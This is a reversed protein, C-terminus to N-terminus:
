VEIETTSIPKNAVRERLAAVVWKLVDETDVGNAKTTLIIKGDKELRAEFVTNGGADTVVQPQRRKRPQTRAALMQMVWGRYSTGRPGELVRHLGLTLLELEGPYDKKLQLYEAAIAPGIKDPRENMLAHFETPLELMKLIGSVTSQKIGLLKGAQTQNNALNATMARQIAIAKEWGTLEERGGNQVLAILQATQDDCVKICADIGQWGINRAARTRRHGGLLEYHDGVARVTILEAQGAERMSEGLDDIGAPDYQMRPQYPSDLILALPIRRIEDMTPLRAILQETTLNAAQRQAAKDDDAQAVEEATKRKGVIPPTHLIMKTPVVAAAAKTDTVPSGVAGKNLKRLFDAESERPKAM